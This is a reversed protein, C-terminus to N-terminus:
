PSNVTINGVMSTSRDPISWFPVTGPTLFLVFFRTVSGPALDHSYTTGNNSYTFTHLTDDENLITIRTLVCATVNFASPSFRSNSAGISVNSFRSL